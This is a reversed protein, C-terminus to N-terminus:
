IAHRFERAASRFSRVMLWAMVPTGIVFASWVTVLGGGITNVALAALGTITWLGGGFIILPVRTNGMGRLGGAAVFLIALPPMSFAMVRLADIGAEVVAPDATFTRLVQPAFIFLILGFGSMWILAWEAAIRTAAEGVRINRAGVSQGVLATAAIAFGFGPLFALALANVAIRNAALAATGLQGVVVTLVFFAGSALIQELAAPVGISLVDRAAARNPRWAGAGGIRIGNRGRWLVILLMALAVARAIFSAWASGVAGLEPLGLRGFILAWTLPVNILNAITTVILPTRSDGAGRLVGGGIFLGILVIVTGMTVQMYRVGIEAAAPQMGFLGIVPEAAWLGLLALPISIIVGWVLAQRALDGARSFNQAGVAQAVLVSAGVSLASLASLLFQMVQVAAGVGALALASIALQAVLWTDVIGLLTELFNEAIVPWALAFVRRRLGPASREVPAALKEEAISM